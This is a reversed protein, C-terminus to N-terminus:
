IMDQKLNFRNHHIRRQSCYRRSSCHVQVWTYRHRYLLDSWRAFCTTHLCNWWYKRLRLMNPQFRKSPFLTYRINPRLIEVVNSIHKYHSFICCGEETNSIFLFTRISALHYENFTWTLASRISKTLWTNTKQCHHNFALCSEIFLVVYVM